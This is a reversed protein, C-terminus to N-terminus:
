HGGGKVLNRLMQMSVDCAALEEACRKLERVVLAPDKINHKYKIEHELAAWADMAITRLQVEIYFKGPDAGEVDQYPATFLLIMHYSRYGNPKAKKIYDKEEVIQCGDIGRIYEVCKKVDEQFLCVVRLGISDHLTRLAQFATPELEKRICKERMSDESKVRVNLHEFAHCGSEKVTLDDLELLKGQFLEAVHPLIEAQSGYISDNIESM